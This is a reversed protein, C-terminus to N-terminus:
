KISKVLTFAQKEMINYNLAVDRLSKNFFAIPQEYGESNKQLLMAAITHESTFSFLYFDKTYDPSILVPAQTLAHKVQKFSHKSETNWKIKTDKKLMNTINRLLEALNPIFRRLFNIKDIFSQLEKINRPHEVKQIAEIRSPDIKIGDKSIIHGLLKGEELGFLIKKPNLSIGFKRCKEFVRRLHLFHEEDYKSYISVDDLYIVIFIGLEDVFSFDMARQFTAGVNMLGFPMKVYMFTGWPTTFTPKEQDEPHFLVQNYGSFGDLLSIRSAGVVKQLIHDMKPLPYNDKLSVKNLNIFDICLRIEGNKKRTPVLNSVWKSFRLPVIIKADYMKKIEKEILPLLKPNIRRLKQRFPKHEEKIPIQHQIISTDYSKLDEYGWAFVDVYEKFLEIYKQKKEPPLSKFLKIMKPKEETGINCEEVEKGSAEIKPNKAVDNFDFLDELPVLGRPLVNNKLQLIGSDIENENLEDADVKSENLEKSDVNNVSGSESSSKNVHDNELDINTCEFENKCQLFDEIQDDNRFVQWYRINDPITPRCKVEVIYQHTPRFPIKCTTTSTALGDALINQGRPMVQLDIETFCQLVDLVVNRYARLRPHKAAYEVKIKKIILESDGRIMIQKAGVKKLLKLDLM